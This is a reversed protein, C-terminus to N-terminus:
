WFMEGGGDSVLIVFFLKIKGFGVQTDWLPHVIALKAEMSTAQVLVVLISYSWFPLRGFHFVVLILSLWFPLRGFNLLVM